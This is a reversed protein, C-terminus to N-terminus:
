KLTAVEDIDSYKNGSLSSFFNVLYEAFDDKGFTPSKAGRFLYIPYINMLSWLIKDDSNKNWINQWNEYNNKAFLTLRGGIKRGKFRTEIYQQSFIETLSAYLINNSSTKQGQKAVFYSYPYKALYHIISLINQNFSELNTIKGTGDRQLTIELGTGTKIGEGQYYIPIALKLNQNADNGTSHPYYFNIFIKEVFKGADDKINSLIDYLRNYSGIIADKIDEVINQLQIVNNYDQRTRTRTLDTGTNMDDYYKTAWTMLQLEGTSFRDLEFKFQFGSNHNLPDVHFLPNTYKQTGFVLKTGAGMYVMNRIQTMYHTDVWNTLRSGALTYFSELFKAALFNEAVKRKNADTGVDGTRRPMPMSTLTDSIMKVTEKFITQKGTLVSRSNPATRRSGISVFDSLYVELFTQGIEDFWGRSIQKNPYTEFLDTAFSRAPAIYMERFDNGIKVFQRYGFLFMSSYVWLSKPIGRLGGSM